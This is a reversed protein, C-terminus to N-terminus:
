PAIEGTMPDHSWGVAADRHLVLTHGAIQDIAPDAMIIHVVKSTENHVVACRAADHDPHTGLLNSLTVHDTRTGWPVTALQEGPGVLLPHELESDEDPIIIRRIHKSQAGYVVGIKTAPM